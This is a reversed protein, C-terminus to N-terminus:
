PEGLFKNDFPIFKSLKPGIKENETITLRALKTVPECFVCIGGRTVRLTANEDTKAVVRAAAFVPTRHSLTTGNFHITDSGTLQAEIVVDEEM